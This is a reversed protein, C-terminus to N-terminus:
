HGFPVWVSLGFRVAIRDFTTPFGLPRPATEDFAYHYYLTEGYAALRRTLARRVRVSANYSDYRASGQSLGVSGLTFSARSVMEMRPSLMGTVSATFADGFLPRDFGDVYHLQRRYEVLTTWTRRFHHEFAASGIARIRRGGMDSELITSGTNFSLYTRRTQSLPRRYDVGIDINHTTMEVGSGYTGVTYAYGLELGANRTLQHEFSMGAHQLEMTFTSIDSRRRTYGGDVTFSSARGVQIASGAVVSYRLSNSAVVSSEFDATPPAAGPTPEALRSDLGSGTVPVLEFSYRPSYDLRPSAFLRVRRHLPASLQFGARHYRGTVNELGPYYRVSNDVWARFGGEAGPRRFLGMRSYSLGASLGTALGGSASALQQQNTGRGSSEALVDDDYGGFVQFLLNWPAQREGLGRAQAGGFVASGQPAPAPSLPSQPAQAGPSGAPPAPAPQPALPSQPSAPRDPV